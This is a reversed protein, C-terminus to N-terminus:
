FALDVRADLLSNVIFQEDVLEGDPSNLGTCCPVLRLVVSQFDIRFVEFPYLKCLTPRHDYISCESDSKLFICSGDEKAKLSGLFPSSCDTGGEIPIMFEEESYGIREIREADSKTLKPGGLKCCFIACRKCKFRLNKRYLAIDLIQKTEPNLLIRAIEENTEM